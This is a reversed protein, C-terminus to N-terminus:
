EGLYQGARDLIRSVNDVMSLTGRMALTGACVCAMASAQGSLVRGALDLSEFRMGARPSPSPQPVFTMRHDRVRLTYGLEDGVEVAVDGDPMHDASYRGSRDENALQAVAACAVFLTLVTSTRAFEGDALDEASPRLYRTLLETLPAFVHLLFGIRHFGSVPVPQATGAIVANFAAPSVFPLLVTSAARDPVLRAQGDKFALVARPGGRVAFGLTTARPDTAVIQRAAPVRAVLEPIAGLVAHLNVYAAARPDLTTLM